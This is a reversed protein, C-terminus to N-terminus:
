SKKHVINSDNSGTAPVAYAAAAPVAADAAAAPLPEAAPTHAAASVSLPHLLWLRRWFSWESHLLWCCSFGHRIAWHQNAGLCWLVFPLVSGPLRVHSAMSRCIFSAFASRSCLITVLFTIQVICESLGYHTRDLAQTPVFICSFLAFLARSYYLLYHPDNLLTM